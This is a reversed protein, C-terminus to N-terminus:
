VLVALYNTYHDLRKAALGVSDSPVFTRNGVGFNSYAHVIMGSISVDRVEPIKAAIKKKKGIFTLSLKVVLVSITQLM